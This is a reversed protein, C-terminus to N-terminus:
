QNVEDALQHLSAQIVHRASTATMESSPQRRNDGGPLMMMSLILTNMMLVVIIAVAYQISRPVHSEWWSLLLPPWGSDPPNLHM